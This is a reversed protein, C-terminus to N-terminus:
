KSHLLQAAVMGRLAARVPLDQVQELAQSVQEGLLRAAEDLNDAKLAADLLAGNERATTSTSASRVLVSAYTGSGGFEFLRHKSCTWAGETAMASLGHGDDLLLALNFMADLSVHSEQLLDDVLSDRLATYAPSAATGFHEALRDLQATLRDSGELLDDPLPLGLQALLNDLSDQWEPFDAASREAEVGIVAGRDDSELSFQDFLARLVPTVKSCTLTGTMDWYNNAM